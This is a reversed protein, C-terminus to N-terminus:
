RTASEVARDLADQRTKVWPNYHKQTVRISQHGLLISVTEISAGGELLAVAFTDRFRHPHGSVKALTLIEAIRARWYGTTTELKSEGTWFFYQPNSRKVSRLADAVNQPLLVSVPEGTKAQYLKLRNGKLSDAALMAADSIRLGSHRMTLIFAEVRHDAEDSKAAKLIKEMEDKSFPLTPNQKLKPGVLNVAHNEEAMKRQLAFKFVGRFRELRKSATLAGVKWEARFETLADLDLDNVFKIGRSQTFELIQRFLLKYLRLTAQSLNRAEADKLFQDRWEEITARVKAKPREGDVDWKRVVEQARNWDRTKLAERVRRKDKTGSVWIPCKCRFESRSTFRCKEPNHRRYTILM